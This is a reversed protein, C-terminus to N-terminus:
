LIYNESLIFNNVSEIIKPIIEKDNLDVEKSIPKNRDLNNEFYGPLRVTADSDIFVIDTIISDTNAFNLFSTTTSGNAISKIYDYQELYSQELTVEQHWRGQKVPSIITWNTVKLKNLTKYLDLGWLKPNTFLVTNVFLRKVDPKVYEIFEIANEYSNKGRFNNHIEAIGDISVYLTCKGWVYKPISDFANKSAFANTTISFDFDLEFLLILLNRIDKWFFPEGGTLSIRWKDYQRLDTLLTKLTNFDLNDKMRSSSNSRCYNCNLNCWNLLQICITPPFDNHNRYHILELENKFM